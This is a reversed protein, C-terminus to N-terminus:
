TSSQQRRGADDFLSITNEGTKKLSITANKIPSRDKSNIIKGEVSFLDRNPIFINIESMEQGAAVSVTQAKETTLVDPYFMTLLSSGGFLSEDLGGYGRSRNDGHSVNESVKVIYDGNPLGSFRYVGRDDTQFGGSSGMMMSFIASFNAVVPVFKEKVKRLIEVKVGIAPDGDAYTVRGSIAGGRRAPIQVDLDGIGSVIIPAFNEVAEEIGENKSRSLDAYALPSIIGPANVFAYYTGAVVDKIQFNGNNDTLGTWDRGGGSKGMLTISTRRVPRGTDEYFVRGRVTAKLPTPTPHFNGNMMVSNSRVTVVDGSQMRAKPALLLSGVLLVAFCAATKFIFLLHRANLKSKVSM